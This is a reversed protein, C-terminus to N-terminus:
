TCLFISILVTLNVAIVVILLKHGISTFEDTAPRPENEVVITDQMKEVKGSNGFNKL